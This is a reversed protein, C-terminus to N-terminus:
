ISKSVLEEKVIKSVVGGEAKRGMKGMVEGMVKGFNSKDPISQLIAVVIKRVEDPSLEAPLYKQLIGIQKEEEEVLDQRNGKKFMEVSERHTKVQKKLVNLVDEDTLTKESGPPCNNIEFNKIDSLLFRLAGVLFNDKAKMAINLDDKIKAYLM